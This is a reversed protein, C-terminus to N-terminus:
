TRANGSLVQAAGRVGARFADDFSIGSEEWSYDKGDAYLRWSVLWGMARDSWILTGALVRDGGLLGARADLAASDFKALVDSGIGIEAIADGSPLAVPLAYKDAAAALSDRMYFGQEADSSLVFDLKASKVGLVVALHPRNALWPRSGLTRLAADIKAPDFNVTLDHPRDYTGQEDHIPIGELRDRYTFSAAYDGASALVEDAAGSTILSYDGSVRVIVDELALRFGLPRNEEATGTVIAVATYLKDPADAARAQSALLLALALLLKLVANM